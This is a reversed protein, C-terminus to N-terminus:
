LSVLKRFTLFEGTRLIIEKAQAVGAKHLHMKLLTKFHNRGKYTGDYLQFTEKNIKQGKDDIAYITLLKPEKWDTHFGQRKQGKKKRGKKAKRIRTRGGDVAIVVRQGAFTDGQPLLGKKLQEIEAARNELASEGVQESITRVRKESIDIDHRKLSETAEAFPNNLAALTVENQLAPSTRHKIGLQKLAPYVGKGKKGRRGVSRKKGKKQPLMYVTQVDVVRGGRLQVKTKKKHNRVRYGKDGYEAIKQEIFEADGLVKRLTQEVIMDGLKQLEKHVYHEFNLFSASDKQSLFQNSLKTIEPLFMSSFLDPLSM